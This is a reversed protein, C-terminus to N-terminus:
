TSGDAYLLHGLAGYGTNAVSTGVAFAIELSSLLYEFVPDSLLTLVLGASFWAGDIPIRGGHGIVLLTGFYVDGEAELYGGSKHSNLHFLFKKVKVAFSHTCNFDCAAVEIWTAELALRQSFRLAGLDKVAFSHRNNFDCSAVEFLTPWRLGLPLELM